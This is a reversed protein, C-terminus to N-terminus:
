SGARWGEAAVSRSAVGDASFLAVLESVNTTLSHHEEVARHARDTLRDALEDDLLVRELAEALAPVNSPAVTLATVDHIALEPIGAINTTVVPVGTAMAEMISVPLGESYSPLCFVDAECLRKAVDDPPLQGLFSVRRDVGLDEALRRLRQEFPGDGVFDVQVDLGRDAMLRVAHLLTAHGKEPSLRGITVIRRPGPGPRFSRRGFRDFDIGCRVVHFKDWWRPDTVRCLQSRTFDSVCVVFAASVAKLDLRADKEDVFDQFGHITFSWTWSDPEDWNGITAAFWAISAPSQGFHAHLHRVGLRRCQGVVMTAYVLHAMRRVMITLDFRASAIVFLALKSMRMPNALLVRGVAAVAAIPSARKLYFCSRQRRRGDSNVVESEDPANMAIPVVRIGSREVEDIEGSIFTMAVRPYDTLVYAVSRAETGSSTSNQTATMARDTM